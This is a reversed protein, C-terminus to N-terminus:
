DSEVCCNQWEKGLKKKFESLEENSHEYLSFVLVHLHPHWGNQLGWTVELGRIHHVKGFEAWLQRGTRNGNLKDFADTLGEKLRLLEDDKSHRVTLTVLYIKMKLM